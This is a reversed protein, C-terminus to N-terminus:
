EGNIEDGLYNIQTKKGNITWEYMPTKDPDAINITAVDDTLLLGAWTGLFTVETGDSVDIGTKRTYLDTYVKVIEPKSYKDAADQATRVEDLSPFVQLIESTTFTANTNPVSAQASDLQKLSDFLEDCLVRKFVNDQHVSLVSSTQIQIRDSSKYVYLADFTTKFGKNVNNEFTCRHQVSTIVHLGGLGLANAMSDQRFITDGTDGDIYVLMGPTIFTCLVNLDVTVSYVSTLQAFMGFHNSSYRAERLYEDDKKSFKISDVVNSSVNIEDSAPAAADSNPPQNSQAAKDRKKQGLQQISNTQQQGVPAKTKKYSFDPLRIIPINYGICDSEKTLIAKAQSGYSYSYIINFYDERKNLLGKRFIPTNYSGEEYNGYYKLDEQEQISCAPEYSQTRIKDQLEQRYSSCLIQTTSQIDGSLYSVGQSGRLLEWKLIEYTVNASTYDSYESGAGTSQLQKEAAGLSLASDISLIIPNEKYDKKNNIFNTVCAQTIQRIFGMLPYYDFEQDIIEQKIWEQLFSISVPYDILNLGDEVETSYFKVPNLNFFDKMGEQANNNTDKRVRISLNLGLTSETFNIDEHGNYEYITDMAVDVIDGITTWFIKKAGRATVAAAAGSTTGGIAEALTIEGSPSSSYIYRYQNFDTLTTFTNSMDSKLQGNFYVTGGAVKGNKTIDGPSIPSSFVRGRKYLGNIITTSLSSAEVKNIQRNYEFLEDVKEQKCKNAQAANIIKQREIKQELKDGSMVDTVPSNLLKMVFGAYKIQITAEPKKPDKEITHDIVSLDLIMPSNKLVHELIKDNAMGEQYGVKLLIRSNTASYKTNQIYGLDQITRTDSNGYYTLFDLVKWKYEKDIGSDTASVTFEQNLSSIRPIKLTLSVEVDNQATAPTTGKFSISLDKISINKLDSPPEVTCSSNQSNNSNDANNNSNSANTADIQAFNIPLHVQYGKGDRYIMKYFGVTSAIQSSESANRFFTWSWVNTKLDNVIESKPPFMLPAIRGGYPRISRMSQPITYSSRFFKGPSNYTAIKTKDGDSLNDGYLEFMRLSERFKAFYEPYEMLIKQELNRGFIERDAQTAAQLFDQINQMDAPPVASNNAQTLRAAIANQASAGLSVDAGALLDLLKNWSNLYKAETPNSSANGGIHASNNITGFSKLDGNKIEDFKYDKIEAAIYKLNDALVWKMYIFHQNDTYIAAINGNQFGGGGPLGTGLYNLLPRYQDSYNLPPSCYLLLSNLKSRDIVTDGEEVLLDALESITDYSNVNAPAQAKIQDLTDALSM